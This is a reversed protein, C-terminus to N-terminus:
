VNLATSFVSWPLDGTITSGLVIVLFASGAASFGALSVALFDSSGLALVGSAGLASSGLASAGTSSDASVSSFAGSAYFFM